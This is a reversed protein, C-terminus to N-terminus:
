SVFLYIYAHAASDICYFIFILFSHPSVSWLSAGMLFKKYLPYEVYLYTMDDDWEALCLYTLLICTILLTM